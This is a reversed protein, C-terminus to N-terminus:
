MGRVGNHPPAPSRRRRSQRLILTALGGVLLMPTGVLLGISLAYGKAAKLVQQAQAPDFLAEKCMPCAWVAMPLVCAFAVALGLASAVRM